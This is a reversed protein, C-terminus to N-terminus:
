MAMFLAGSRGRLFKVAMSRRSWLRAQALDSGLGALGHGVDFFQHDPAVVRGGHVGVVAKGGDIALTLSMILSWSHFALVKRGVTPLRPAAMMSARPRDDAADAALAAMSWMRSQASPVLPLHTVMPMGEVALVANGLVGHEAKGDGAFAPSYLTTSPRSISAKLWSM